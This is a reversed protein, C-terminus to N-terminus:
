KKGEEEQKEFYQKLLMQYAKSIKFKGQEWESIRQRATGIGDAV